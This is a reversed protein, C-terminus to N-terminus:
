IDPYGSCFYEFTRIITKMIQVPLKAYNSIILILRTVSISQYQKFLFTSVFQMGGNNPLYLIIKLENVYHRLIVKFIM